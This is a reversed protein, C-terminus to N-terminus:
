FPIIKAQLTSKYMVSDEEAIELTLVTAKEILLFYHMQDFFAHRGPVNSPISKLSPEGPSLTLSNGKVTANTLISLFHRPACYSCNPHLSSCCYFLGKKERKKKGRQAKIVCVERLM